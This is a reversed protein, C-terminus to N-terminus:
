CFCWGGLDLMTALHVDAFHSAVLPFPYPNVCLQYSLRAPFITTNNKVQLQYEAPREIALLRRHQRMVDDVPEAGIIDRRKAPAPNELDESKRQLM